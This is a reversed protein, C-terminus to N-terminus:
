DKRNPNNEYFQKMSREVAAQLEDATIGFKVAEETICRMAKCFSAVEIDIMAFIAMAHVQSSENDKNM